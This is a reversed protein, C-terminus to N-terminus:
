GGIGTRVRMASESCYQAILWDRRLADKRSGTSMDLTGWRAVTIRGGSKGRRNVMVPRKGPTEGDLASM